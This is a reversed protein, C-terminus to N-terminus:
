QGFHAGINVLSDDQPQRLGGFSRVCPALTTRLYSRVWDGQALDRATQAARSSLQPLRVRDEFMASRRRFWVCM